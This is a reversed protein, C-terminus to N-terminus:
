FPIDDDDISETGPESYNITKQASTKKKKADSIPTYNDNHWDKFRMLAGNFDLAVIDCPGNRNKGIIVEALGVTSENNEDITIGYYEPRYLFYVNDADQEISGSERLDSLAPRKNGGPRTDVSRSLQSLAIVPINLEKAIAKMGRSIEGIEQERNRGRKETRITMLQLYDVVIMGINYLKKMRIAKSRFAELSLAPTDDVFIKSYKLQSINDNIVKHDMETLVKKNIKELYVNTENSIMRNVLQAKSMELSFVAVPTDFDIAANRTIQLMLATKGMAPRAAIINLDTNQWGGTNEDLKKFGTGIGVLGKVPPKKMEILSENVLDEMVDADRGFNDSFLEFIQGQNREYLEFVDTTDEYASGITETSIRIMERQLYKQYVIRAHYELNAGSAVRNTLETVAYAGGIMELEGQFRLQQCVTVIDIPENKSFLRSIATYIKKYNDKYFCEPRLIDAVLLFADKEIMIAGLIIEEVETAQPPLKGLGSYPTPTNIRSRRDNSTKESPKDNDFTM